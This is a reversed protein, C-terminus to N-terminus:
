DTRRPSATGSSLPPSEPDRIEDLRQTLDQVDTKKLLDRIQEPTHTSEVNLHDAIDHLLQLVATMEREALLDVQLDLHARKDAQRSLSNQSALVFLTLFIAELSVAMTLLPFPFADFPKLGPILGANLIAWLAFWLVHVLLVPGSAFTATIWDGLREARTREDQLNKEWLQIAAVNEDVAAAAPSACAAARSPDSPRSAAHGPAASTQVPTM